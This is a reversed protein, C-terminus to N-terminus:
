TGMQWAYEADLPIGVGENNEPNATWFGYLELAGWGTRGGAHGFGRFLGLIIGVIKSGAPNKIPKFGNTYGKYVQMPVEVVGSVLNITGRIAKKGMGEPVNNTSAYASPVTLFMALIFTIWKQMKGGKNKIEKSFYDQPKKAKKPTIM